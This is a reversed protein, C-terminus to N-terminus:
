TKKQKKRKTYISTKQWAIEKSTGRRAMDSVDKNEEIM